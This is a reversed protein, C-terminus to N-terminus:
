NAKGKGSVSQVLTNRAVAAGVASVRAAGDQAVVRQDEEVGGQRVGLVHLLVQDLAPRRLQPAEARRAAGRQARQEAVGGEGVAVRRPQSGSGFRDAPVRLTRRDGGGPVSSDSCPRIPHPNKVQFTKKERQIFCPISGPLSPATSGYPTTPARSSRKM